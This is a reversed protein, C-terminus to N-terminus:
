AVLYTSFGQQKYAPLAWTGSIASFANDSFYESFGFMSAFYGYVGFWGLIFTLIFVNWNATFWDGVSYSYDEVIPSAAVLAIALALFLASKM